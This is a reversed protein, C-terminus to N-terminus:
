ELWENKHARTKTLLVATCYVVTVTTRWCFSVVWRTSTYCPKMCSKSNPSFVPHYCSSLLAHFCACMHLHAHRSFPDLPIGGGLFIKFKSGRLNSRVCDWSKQPPSELGGQIFRQLLTAHHYMMTDLSTPDGVPVKQPFKSRISAVEDKRSATSSSYVFLHLYTEMTVCNLVSASLDTHYITYLM